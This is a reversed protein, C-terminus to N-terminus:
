NDLTSLTIKMTKSIDNNIMYNYRMVSIFDIIVYNCRTNKKRNGLTAEYSKALSLKGNKSVYIRSCLM